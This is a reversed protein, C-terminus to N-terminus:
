SWETWHVITATDSRTVKYYNGSLVMFSFSGTHSYIAGGIVSTTPNSNSDTICTITEFMVGVSATVSVFMSKGTTNQYVTGFSRNLTTQTNQTTFIPGNINGCNISTAKLSGVTVGSSNAILGSVNTSLDYTFIFNDITASM